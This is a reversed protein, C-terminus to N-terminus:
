PQYRFTAVERDILFKRFASAEKLEDLLKPHEDSCIALYSSSRGRKTVKTSATVLTVLTTEVPFVGNIMATSTYFSRITSAKSSAPAAELIRFLNPTRDSSRAM